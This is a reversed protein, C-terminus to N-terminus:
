RGRCQLSPEHDAGTALCLGLGAPDLSGLRQQLADDRAQTQHATAGRM